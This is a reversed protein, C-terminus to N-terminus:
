LPSLCAAFLAAALFNIELMRRQGAMCESLTSDTCCQTSATGQM